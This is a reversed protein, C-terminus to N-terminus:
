KNLNKIADKILNKVDVEAGHLVNNLATKNVLFSAKAKKLVNTPKIGKKQIGKAIAWGIQNKTLRREGNRNTIGKVDVWKQIAKVNPLTGPKRGKDVFKLYDNALIELVITDATEVVRYDLSDILIGTAKKNNLLLQKTIEEVFMEGYRLIAAKFNENPM